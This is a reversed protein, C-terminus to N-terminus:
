ALSRHRVIDGAEHRLKPMLLEGLHAVISTGEHGKAGRHIVWATDSVEDDHVAQGHDFVEFSGVRPERALPPM